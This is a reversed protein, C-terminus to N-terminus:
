PLRVLAYRGARAVIPLSSPVSALHNSPGFVAYTVGYVQRLVTPEFGSSYFNSLHQERDGADLGQSWIHGTYGLLGPRGSLLVPSDYAPVAAIVAGTPTVDAIAQGFAIAEPDFILHALRGNAV